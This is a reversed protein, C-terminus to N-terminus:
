ILDGVELYIKVLCSKKIQQLKTRSISLIESISEEITDCFFYQIFYMAEQYTLKTSINLIRHYMMKIFQEDDIKKGVINLLKNPNLPTNGVKDIRLQNSKLSYSDDIRYVYKIDNFKSFLRKLEKKLDVYYYNSILSDNLLALFENEKAVKMVESPLNSLIQYNLIDDMEIKM